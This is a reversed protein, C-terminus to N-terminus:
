ASLLPGERTDGQDTALSTFEERSLAINPDSAQEDLDAGAKYLM